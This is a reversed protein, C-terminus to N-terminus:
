IPLHYVIWVPDTNKKEAKKPVQVKYPCNEYQIADAANHGAGCQMGGEGLYPHPQKHKCDFCYWNKNEM